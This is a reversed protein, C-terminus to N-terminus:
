YFKGGERLVTYIKKGKEGASEEEHKIVKAAIASQEPSTSFIASVYQSGIDEGQGDPQTPDHIHM